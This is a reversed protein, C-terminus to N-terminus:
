SPPLARPHDRGQSWSVGGGGERIHHFPGAPGGEHRDAGSSPPPPPLPTLTHVTDPGGRPNELESPNFTRWLIVRLFADKTDPALSHPNLAPEVGCTRSNFLTLLVPIFAWPQPEIRPERPPLFFPNPVQLDFIAQAVQEEFADVPADGDKVIKKKATFM